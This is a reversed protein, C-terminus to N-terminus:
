RPFDAETYGFEQYLFDVDSVVMENPYSLINEGCLENFKDIVTNLEEPFSDYGFYSMSNMENNSDFYSVYISYAFVNREAAADNEKKKNMSEIYEAFFNFDDRSIIKSPNNRMDVLHCRHEERDVYYYHFPYRASYVHTDNPSAVTMEICYLKVQDEGVTQKTSQITENKEGARDRAEAGCGGLLLVACLLLLTHIIKKKQLLSINFSKKKELLSVKFGKKLGM